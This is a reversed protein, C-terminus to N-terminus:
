IIADNRAFLRVQSVTRRLYEAIIGNASCHVDFFCTALDALLACMEVIGVFLASARDHCRSGPAFRDSEFM